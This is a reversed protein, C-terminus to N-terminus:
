NDVEQRLWWCVQKYRDRWLRELSGPSKHEEGSVTRSNKYACLPSTSNVAMSPASCITHFDNECLSSSLSLILTSVLSGSLGRGKSSIWAHIHHERQLAAHQKLSLSLYVVILICYEEPAHLHGKCYVVFLLICSHLMATYISLMNIYCKFVNCSSAGLSFALLKKPPPPPIKVTLYILFLCDLYPAASTPQPLTTAHAPHRHHTPVGTAPGDMRSIHCCWSSFSTHTDVACVCPWNWMPCQHPKVPSNVPKIAVNSHPAISPSSPPPPPPTPLWLLVDGKSLRGLKVSAHLYGNVTDSISFFNLLM